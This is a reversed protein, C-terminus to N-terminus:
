TGTASERGGNKSFRANRQCTADCFKSPHNDPLVLECFACARKVPAVPASQGRHKRTAAYREAAEIGDRCVRSCWEGSQDKVTFRLFGLPVGCKDCAENACIGHPEKLEAQKASSLEM